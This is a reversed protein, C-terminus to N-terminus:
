SVVTSGHEFESNVTFTGSPTCKAVLTKTDVVLLWGTDTYKLWNRTGVPPVFSTKNNSLWNAGGSTLLGTTSSRNVLVGGSIGPLSIDLLVVLAPRRRLAPLVDSLRSVHELEFREGGQAEFAMRIFGAYSEDDDVILVPTSATGNVM